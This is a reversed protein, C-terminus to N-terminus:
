VRKKHSHIILEPARPSGHRSFLQELNRCRLEAWHEKRTISFMRRQNHINSSPLHVQPTYRAADWAVPIYEAATQTLLSESGQVSPVFPNDLEQPIRQKLSHAFDFGSGMATGYLEFDDDLADFLQFDRFTQVPQHTISGLNPLLNNGTAFNRPSESGNVEPLRKGLTSVSEDRNSFRTSSFCQPSNSIRTQRPFQLTDSPIFAAWPENEGTLSPMWCKMESSPAKEKAPHWIAKKVLDSKPCSVRKRDKPDLMTKKGNTAKISTPLIVAQDRYIYKKQGLHSLGKKGEDTENAHPNYSYLTKENFLSRESQQSSGRTMTCSDADPINVDDNSSRNRGFAKKSSEWTEIFRAFKEIHRQSVKLDEKAKPM